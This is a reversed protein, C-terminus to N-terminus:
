MEFPLHVLNPNIYSDYLYFLNEWYRARGGPNPQWGNSSMCDWRRLNRHMQCLNPQLQCGEKESPVYGQGPLWCRGEVGPACYKNWPFTAQIQEILCVSKKKLNKSFPCKVRSPYPFNLCSSETLSMNFFDVRSHLWNLPLVASDPFPFVSLCWALLM